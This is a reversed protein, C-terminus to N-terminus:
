MKEGLNKGLIKKLKKKMSNMKGYLIMNMKKMDIDISITDFFKTPFVIVLSLKLKISFNDSVWPIVETDKDFIM